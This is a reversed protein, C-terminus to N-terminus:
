PSMKKSFALLHGVLSIIVNFFVSICITILASVDLPQNETYAVLSITMGLSVLNLAVMVLNILLIFVVPHNSANPDSYLVGTLWTAFLTWLQAVLALAHTDEVAGEPGSSLRTSSAIIGAVADALALLGLVRMARNKDLLDLFWIARLIM